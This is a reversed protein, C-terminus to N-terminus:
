SARAARAGPSDADAAEAPPPPEPSLHLGLTSFLRAVPVKQPTEGREDFTARDIACHTGIEVDDEM